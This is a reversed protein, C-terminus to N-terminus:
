EVSRSSDSAGRINVHAVDHITSLFSGMNSNIPGISFYVAGPIREILGIDGCM